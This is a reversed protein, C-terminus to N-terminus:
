SRRKKDSKELGYKLVKLILNKRSIGLDRSLKSKNWNTRELGERIVDREITEVISKLTGSTKPKKLYSKKSRKSM